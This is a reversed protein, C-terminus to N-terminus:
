SLGTAKRYAKVAHYVDRKMAKLDEWLARKERCSQHCFSDGGGTIKTEALVGVNFEGKMM